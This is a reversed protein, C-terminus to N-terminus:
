DGEYDRGHERYRPLDRIPDLDRENSKSFASFVVGYKKEVSRLHGLSEIVMPKGDVHNVTFPFAATKSYVTGHDAPNNRCYPYMGIELEIGCRECNM